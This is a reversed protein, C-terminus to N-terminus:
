GREWVIGISDMYMELQELEESTALLTYEAKINSAAQVTQKIVLAEQQEAIVEQKAEQRIREEERIRQREEERVRERERELEREQELKRDEELKKEIDRKQQEYRNIYSVASTLDLDDYYMLLASETKDSNMSKLLDIAQKIEKAKATLDEKIQKLNVTANLWKDDQIRELTVNEKLDAFAVEFLQKIQLKKIERQKDELEKVQNDILIIPEEIVGLLEKVKIDFDMYPKM